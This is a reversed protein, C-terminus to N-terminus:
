EQAEIIKDLHINVDMNNSIVKGADERMDRVKMGQLWTKQHAQQPRFVDPRRKSGHRSLFEGVSPRQATFNRQQEDKLDWSGRGSTEKMGSQWLGKEPAEMTHQFTPLEKLVPIWVKIKLNGPGLITSPVCLLRQCVHPSQTCTSQVEM